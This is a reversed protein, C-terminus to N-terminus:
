YLDEDEMGHTSQSYYLELHEKLAKEEKKEPAKEFLDEPAKAAAGQHVSKGKVAKEGHIKEETSAHVPKSSTSAAAEFGYSKSEEAALADNVFPIISSLAFM